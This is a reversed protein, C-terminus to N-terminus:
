GLWIPYISIIAEFRALESIVAEGPAQDVEVLSLAMGGPRNRSLSMNAINIDHKGLTAGIHGIVGPRDYNAVLLINGEPICDTQYDNISVIRPQRTGFLTGSVSSTKQASSLSVSILSSYTRSTTSKQESVEIGRQEALLPANIVNVEGEMFGPKLIGNLVSSSLLTVDYTALEGFYEIRVTRIEDRHLQVMFKGLQEALDLYPQIKEIDKLARGPVNVANRIKGFLLFDLIQRAIMLAVNTQSQTSSAGLHPTLVVNPLKLLENDPSPPEQQYVDLAAGAVRGSELARFLAQEDVIGGRACNIIRVGEKMKGINDANILNQTDRTLPTHLTIFDSRSLLTELDVLEIGQIGARDKTFFPDFALVEMKLGRALEAVLRGVNGLGVVGLIHNGVETGVFEKRKWEGNRVSATAIPIHRSMALMMAITHEATAGANAGPTNMVLVGKRTAAKIDINDVGSGARGVVRLRPAKALLQESVKTRSRVIVAHYEHIIEALEESSLGTLDDVEIGPTDRLLEQGEKQLGDCILVKYTEKM